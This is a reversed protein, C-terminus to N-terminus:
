VGNGATKSPTRVHAQAPHTAKRYAALELRLQHAKQTDRIDAIAIAGVYDSIRQARELETPQPESSGAHEPSVLM